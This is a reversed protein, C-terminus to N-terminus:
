GYGFETKNDNDYEQHTGLFANNSLANTADEKRAKGGYVLV